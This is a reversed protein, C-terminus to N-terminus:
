NVIDQDNNKYKQQYLDMILDQIEKQKDSWTNIKEILEEAPLSFDIDSQIIRALSIALGIQNDGPNTNEAM